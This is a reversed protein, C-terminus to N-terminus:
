LMYKFTSYGLIMVLGFLLMRGLVLRLIIISGYILILVNAYFSKLVFTVDNSIMLMDFYSNVVNYTDRLYFYCNFIYLM